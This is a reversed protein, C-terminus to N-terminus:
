TRAYGVKDGHKHAEPLLNNQQSGRFPFHKTAVPPLGLEPGPRIREIKSNTGSSPVERKPVGALIQM